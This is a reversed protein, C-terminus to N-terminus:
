AQEYICFENGQPDTMVTWVPWGPHEHVEVVSGGRSVVLREFESRNPVRIDLHLRNKTSKGEPVKQFALHPGGESLPSLYAYTEDRHLVELGLTARWFEVAVDLDLTDHMVATVTGIPPDIM